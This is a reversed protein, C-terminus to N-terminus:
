AGGSPRRIEHKGICWCRDGADTQRTTMSAYGLASAVKSTICLLM